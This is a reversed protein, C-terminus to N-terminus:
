LVAMYLQVYEWNLFQILYKFDKKATRAWYTVKESVLQSVLDSIKLFFWIKLCNESKWFIKLNESFKWIKLFIWINPFLIWIKQNNLNESFFESLGKVDEFLLGLSKHGNLCKILTSLLCSRVPIYFFEWFKFIKQFDSLEWTIFM